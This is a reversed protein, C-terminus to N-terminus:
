FFQFLFKGFFPYVVTFGLLRAFSNSIFIRSFYNSRIKEFFFCLSLSLSLSIPFNLILFLFFSLSVFIFRSPPDQYRMAGFERARVVINGM